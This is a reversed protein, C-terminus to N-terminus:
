KVFGQSNSGYGHCANISIPAHHGGTPLNLRGLKHFRVDGFGYPYKFGQIRSVNNYKSDSDQKIYYKTLGTLAVNLGIKLDNVGGTTTDIDGTVRIPGVGQISRVTHEYSIVRYRDDCEDFSLFILQNQKALCIQDIFISSEQKSYYSTLQSDTYSKLATSLSYYSTLQSDIYSRLGSNLSDSLQKTYHNSLRTEVEQKTYTNATAAKLSLAEQTATSIPRSLDSTNDANGLAVMAKSIGRVTGTFTPSDKPAKVAISNIVTSSFNADNDLTQALEKL